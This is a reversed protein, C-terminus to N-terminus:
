IFILIIANTERFNSHIIITKKASTQNERRVTHFFGIKLAHFPGEVLYSCLIAETKNANYENYLTFGQM